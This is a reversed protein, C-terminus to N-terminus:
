SPFRTAKWMKNAFRSRAQLSDMDILLDQGQAAMYCLTFKM